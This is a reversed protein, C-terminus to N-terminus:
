SGTEQAPMEHQLSDPGIIHPPVQIWTMGLKWVGPDSTMHCPLPSVRNGYDDLNNEQRSDKRQRASLM